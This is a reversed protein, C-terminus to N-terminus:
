SGKTPQPEDAVFVVRGEDDVALHGFVDAGDETFATAGGLTSSHDHPNLLPFKLDGAM